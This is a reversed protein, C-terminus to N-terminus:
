STGRPAHHHYLLEIYHNKGQRDILPGWLRAFFPAAETLRDLEATTADRVERAEALDDPVVLEEPSPRNRRRWV